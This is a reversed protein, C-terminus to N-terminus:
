FITFTDDVYRRYPKVPFSVSSLAKEEFSTIVLNATTVSVPSGMPFGEIQRYSAGNSIFHFQNLCFRLLRSIDDVLSSTREGFADDHGLRGADVEVDLQKPVNTFLSVVDFSVMMEDDAIRHNQIISILEQSNKVSLGNSATTPALLEM